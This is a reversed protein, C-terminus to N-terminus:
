KRAGQIANELLTQLLNNTTGLQKGISKMGAEVASMREALDSIENHLEQRTPSAEVLEELLKLRTEHDIRYTELVSFKTDAKTKAQEHDVKTVFKSALWLFIGLGALSVLTVVVPYLARFWELWSSM